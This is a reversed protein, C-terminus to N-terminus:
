GAPALRGQHQVPQLHRPPTSRRRQRGQLRACGTPRLARCQAPYNDGAPEGTECSFHVAVYDGEAMLQQALASLTTTKGTQRPAHVAFYQGEEVLRRAEPLRPEPPLM